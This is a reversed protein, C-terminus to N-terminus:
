QRSSACCWRHACVSPCRSSATCMGQPLADACSRTCTVASPTSTPVAPPGGSSSRRQAPAMAAPAAPAPPQGPPTTPSPGPSTGAPAPETSVQALLSLLSTTSRTALACGPSAHRRRNLTRSRAQVMRGRARRQASAARGGSRARAGPGGGRLAVAVARAAQRRGVRQQLALLVHNQLQAQREPGLGLVHAHLHALPPQPHPDPAPQHVDLAGVPAVPPPRPGPPRSHRGKLREPEAGPPLQLQRAQLGAAWGPRWM